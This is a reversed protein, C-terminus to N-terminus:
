GIGLLEDNRVSVDRIEGLPQFEPEIKRQPSRLREALAPAEHQDIGDGFPSTTTESSPLKEFFRTSKRPSSPAFSESRRASSRKQTARTGAATAGDSRQAKACTM